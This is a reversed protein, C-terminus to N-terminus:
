RRLVVSHHTNWFSGRFHDWAATGSLKRKTQTGFHALNWFSGNRPELILRTGSATSFVRHGDTPKWSRHGQFAKTHTDGEMDLLKIYKVGNRLPTTHDQLWWEVFVSRTGRHYRSLVSELRVQVWSKVLSNWERNTQMTTSWSVKGEFLNGEAAKLRRREAANQLCTFVKNLM